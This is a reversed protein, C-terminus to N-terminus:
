EKEAEIIIISYKEGLESYEEEQMMFVSEIDFNNDKFLEIFEDLSIFEKNSGDIKEVDSYIYILVKGKSKLVRTIEAFSKDIKTSHLVSLSYVADFSNDKFILEEVNGEQFDVKVGVTKANEKALKIAESVIDISTVKLGASAFLISDRGNGCGVELITKKKAEVLKEAFDQAYKSPQLDETWHAGGEEYLKKWNVKDKQKQTTVKAKVPPTNRPAVAKVPPPTPTTIKQIEEMLDKQEASLGASLQKKILDIQGQSLGLCFEFFADPPIISEAMPNTTYERIANARSKGIEVREKESISFLDLWDVKYGNEPKPLIKLEILKDAFPRIIHPEAHDERRSQVYTKWEGTDQASSLEGRESGSLIRQPIGTVASIMMLQVKVHNEPDAIQQALAKLDVGENILVRRLNHEYEDIQEKLDDKTGQTMTYDKDVMGQFGPRAGRWFMEADGGVLKELDQLRNFVSELKPIGIVESELHDELIHIMRSQHVRVTSSSGSAVDAVQVSYILPMGYRSNSPDIEYTDIKASEEGFPKVYLLKRQGGNIPNVFGQQDQVDDLGLLLVGYRGIGTLRDVRALLSRLKLRNNLDNWAKEFPTKKADESEILELQGQWTAKVPRDIIAKAIDQRSYQAWYDQYTLITKYGLAQYIDRDGGYQQGLRSALNARAVVMSTLTQLQKGSLIQIPEKHKTREM